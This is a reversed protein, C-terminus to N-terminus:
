SLEFCKTYSWVGETPNLDPAYAPLRALEIRKHGEEEMFQKVEKSRHISVGDWVIGIKGEIESLLKRLFEIVDESRFTGEKKRLMVWLEGQPSIAAIASLHNWNAYWKLVPTKGRLAWTRVVHPLLYFSSEDLFVITRGARVWKKQAHAM